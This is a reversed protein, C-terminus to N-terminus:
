ATDLEPGHKALDPLSAAAHSGRDFADRAAPLPTAVEEHRRQRGARQAVHAEFRRQRRDLLAGDPVKPVATGGATQQLEGPAEPAPGTTTAGEPRGSRVAGHPLTVLLLAASGANEAKEGAAM